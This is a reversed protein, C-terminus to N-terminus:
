GQEQVPLIFIQWLSLTFRMGFPMYNTFPGPIGPGKTIMESKRM